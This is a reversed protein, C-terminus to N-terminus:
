VSWITLFKASAVLALFCLDSNASNLIKAFFYSCTAGSFEAEGDYGFRELNLDCLHPDATEPPDHHHDLIIVLSKGLNARSILDIHASGIDCYVFVEGEHKHLDEIVEPYIKELCLTKARFGERELAAKMISASCLGDADDHHVLEVKRPDRQKLESIAVVAGREFDEFGM